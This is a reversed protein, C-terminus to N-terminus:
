MIKEIEQNSCVNGMLKNLNIFICMDDMPETIINDVDMSLDDNYSVKKFSRVYM